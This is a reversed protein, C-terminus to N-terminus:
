KRDGAHGVPEHDGIQDGRPLRVTYRRREVQNALGQHHRGHAGGGHEKWQRDLNVGAFPRGRHSRMEGFAHFQQKADRQRSGRPEGHDRWMDRIHDEAHIETREGRLGHRDHRDRHDELDQRLLIQVGAEQQGAAVRKVEDVGRRDDDALTTRDQMKTLWKPVTPAAQARRPASTKPNAPAKSSLRM